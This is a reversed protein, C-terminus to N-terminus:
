LLMYWLCFVLLHSYGAQTKRATRQATRRLHAISTFLHCMCHATADKSAIRLRVLLRTGQIVQQARHCLAIGDCHLAHSHARCGLSLQKLGLDQRQKSLHLAHCTSCLLWRRWPQRWVQWATFAAHGATDDGHRPHTSSPWLRAASAQGVCATVTQM